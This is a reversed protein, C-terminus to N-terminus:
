AFGADPNYEATGPGPENSAIWPRPSGAVQWWADLYEAALSKPDDPRAALCALLVAGAACRGCVGVPAPVEDLDPLSISGGSFFTAQACSGIATDPGVLTAQDGARYRNEETPDMFWAHVSDLAELEEPAPSEGASPVVCQWSWWVADRPALGHALLRVADFPRGAALLADYFAPAMMEPELLAQAEPGLAGLECLPAAELETWDIAEQPQM